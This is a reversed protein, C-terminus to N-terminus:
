GAAALWREITSLVREPPQYGQTILAWGDEGGNGAIMTPFGTVGTRQAITFDTWAETKTEETAHIRLFEAEEWGFGGAIDALVVPDTVDRNHAYFASQVAHFFALTDSAARERVMVVARAAPETDYVFGEREFFAFDFPQGSAEGVHRWHKAIDAKAKADMPKTNGPRLGGNILRIPLTEGYKAEIAAIVPAFGYCWSCMADGFYILQSTAM